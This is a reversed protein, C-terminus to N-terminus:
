AAHLVAAAQRAVDGAIRRAQDHSGVRLALRLDIDHCIEEAAEDLDGSAMMVAVLVQQSLEDLERLAVALQEVMERALEQTAAQVPEPVADESFFAFATAIRSPASGSRRLAKRQTHLWKATRNVATWLVFAELTQKEPEWEYAAAHAHLMLEQQVDDVDIALPLRWRRHVSLALRRWHRRTSAFCASWTIRGLRAARLAESLEPSAM